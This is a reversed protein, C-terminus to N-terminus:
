LDTHKKLMSEMGRWRPPENERSGGNRKGRPEISRNVNLVRAQTSLQNIIAIMMLTKQCENKGRLTVM